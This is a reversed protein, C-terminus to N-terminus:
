EEGKAKGSGKLKPALIVTSAENKICHEYLTRACDKCIYIDDLQTVVKCFRKCFDCETQRVKNFKM